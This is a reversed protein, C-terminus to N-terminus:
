NTFTAPDLKSFLEDDLLKQVAAVDTRDVGAFLGDWKEVLAKMREVQEPADAIGYQEANIKGVAEAESQRFAEMKAILADNPKVLEVGVDGPNDYREQETMYYDVATFGEYKGALAAINKREEDSFGKWVDLNVNFMANGPNLGIPLDLVYDVVEGLSLSKLNDLVQINGDLHGQSLSEYVDSASMSVTVAGMQDVWRSFSGFGRIKMGTFDAPDSIKTKTALYYPGASYFGLFVQNQNTFEELCPACTFMFENSAATMVIPDTTLTALDVVLNSYPFEKRHYAAVIYAIDAVGDRVGAMSESLNLLSGLYLKGTHQGGTADKLGDTFQQMGKSIPNDGALGFAVRLERADAAGALILGAAVTAAFATRSRNFISVARRRAAKGLPAFESRTAAAAPQTQRTTM